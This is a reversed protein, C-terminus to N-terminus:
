SPTVGFDPLRFVSAPDVQPWNKVVEYPGTLDECGWTGPVAAFGAGPKSRAEVSALKSSIVLGLGVGIALMLLM